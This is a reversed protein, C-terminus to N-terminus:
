KEELKALVKDLQGQAITKAEWDTAHRALYREATVTGILHDIEEETLRNKEVEAKLYAIINDAQDLQYLCIDKDEHPCPEDTGFPNGEPTHPCPFDTGFGCDVVIKGAIGERWSM